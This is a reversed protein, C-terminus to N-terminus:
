ACPNRQHRCRLNWPPRKPAAKRFRNGSALPLISQEERGRATISSSVQQVRAPPREVEEETFIGKRRAKRSMRRQLRDFGDEELKAKYAEVMLRFVESKTRRQGKALEAYESAIEPTM